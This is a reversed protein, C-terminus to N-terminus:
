DVRVVNVDFKSSGPSVDVVLIHRGLGDFAEPIAGGGGSIHAPIGANEFEYYSHIHGYLTLDVKGRALQALLKAAEIRSAFSGNRVGIPDIPPVHMAVVHPENVGQELWDDLWHIVLPDVTASASDLLTFRVGHHRFSFSARGFLDQFPPPTTGLEHNGLTTYYPIKLLRLERQYRRLEKSTGQRTLDGAGLLFQVDRQANVAGFVDQVEDIAEQVDSLVAFRFPQLTDAGAVAFTLDVQAPVNELAFHCRTSEEQPLRTATVDSPAHLEGGPMCNHIQLEFANTRTGLSLDVSLSPASAWLVLRESSLEQVAALGAEVDVGLDDAQQHGIELDRQAREESPRLCGNLSLTLAAWLLVKARQGM